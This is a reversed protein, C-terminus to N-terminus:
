FEGRKGKRHLAYSSLAALAAILTLIANYEGVEAIWAPPKMQVITLDATVNDTGWTVLLLYYKDTKTTTLNFSASYGIYTSNDYSRIAGSSTFLSLDRFNELTAADYGAETLVLFYPPFSPGSGLYVKRYHFTVVGSLSSNSAIEDTNFVYWTLFPPRAPKPNQLTVHTAVPEPQQLWPVYPLVALSATVV